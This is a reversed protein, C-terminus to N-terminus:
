TQRRAPPCLFSKGGFDLMVLKASECLRTSEAELKEEAVGLSASLERITCPRREVTQLIRAALDDEGSFGPDQRFAGIIATKNHPFFSAACRMREEPLGCTGDVAPPRAVTNLEIRDADIESAERSLASLEEPSDNAGSVFMIELHLRGRYDKRFARIGEIVKELGLSPHPRNIMSFVGPTAADLSPVVIDAELLDKRVAEDWLLSGNTLVVLPIPYKEKIKRILEGLQLYLTPEGASSFTIADAGGPSRRFFDDLQRLVEAPDAFHERRVSLHTTAGSECYICDFSCTKAPIVDIGLSRGLRRSPVPGFIHNM